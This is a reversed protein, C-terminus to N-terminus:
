WVETVRAAGLCGAHLGLFSRGGQAATTCALLSKQQGQYSVRGFSGFPGCRRWGDRLGRRLLVRAAGFRDDRLGLLSAAVCCLRKTPKRLQKKTGEGRRRLEAARAFRGDHLGLLSAALCEKQKLPLQLSPKSAKSPAM